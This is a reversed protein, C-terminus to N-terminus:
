IKTNPTGTTYAALIVVDNAPTAGTGDTSQFYLNGDGTKDFAPFMFEATAKLTGDTFSKKISTCYGDAFVLRLNQSTAVLADDAKVATVDETTWRLVLRVKRRILNNQISVAGTAPVAGDGYLWNYLGEIDVDAGTETHGATLPYLELTIKSDEEPNFKILRCGKLTKISEFGKEGADIDISETICAAHFNSAEDLINITVLATETWADVM